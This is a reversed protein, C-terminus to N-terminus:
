VQQRYALSTKPATEDGSAGVPRDGQLIKPIGFLFGVAGGSALCALAWLFPTATAAISGTHMGITAIGFFVSLILIGNTQWVDDSRAIGPSRADTNRGFTSSLLRM